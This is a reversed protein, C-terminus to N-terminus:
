LATHVTNFTLRSSWLVQELQTLYEKKRDTTTKETANTTGESSDIASPPLLSTREHIPKIEEIADRKSKLIEKIYKLKETVPVNITKKEEKEKNGKKVHEAGM